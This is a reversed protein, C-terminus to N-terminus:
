QSGPFAGYVPRAVPGEAGTRSGPFAGYVPAAPAAPADDDDDVFAETTGEVRRAAEAQARRNAREEASLQPRPTVVESAGTFDQGVGPIYSEYEPNAENLDFRERYRRSEEDDDQPLPVGPSAARDLYERERNARGESLIRENAEQREAAIRDRRQQLPQAINRDYADSVARRTVRMGEGANDVFGRANSAAYQGAGYVGSGAASVDAGFARRMSSLDGPTTYNTPAAPLNGLQDYRQGYKNEKAQITNGDLELSYGHYTDIFQKMLSNAYNTREASQEPDRYVLGSMLGTMKRLRDPGQSAVALNNSLRQSFTFGEELYVFYLVLLIILLICTGACMGLSAEVSLKYSKYDSSDPDFYTTSFDNQFGMALWVVGVALSVSAVIMIVTFIYMWGFVTRSAKNNSFRPLPSRTESLIDSSNIKTKINSPTYFQSRSKTLPSSM